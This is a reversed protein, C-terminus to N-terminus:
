AAEERSKEWAEIEDLKWRTLQPGLKVPKPFDSVSHPGNGAYNWISSVSCGLRGAVDKVSLYKQSM